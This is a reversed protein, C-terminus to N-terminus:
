RRPGNGGRGCDALAPEDNGDGPGERERVGELSGLQQHAPVRAPFQDELRSGEDAVPLSIVCGTEAV